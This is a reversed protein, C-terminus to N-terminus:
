WPFRGPVTGTRLWITKLVKKGPVGPFRGRFSKPVKGPVQGPVPVERILVQGSGGQFGGRFRGPVRDRFRCGERFRHNPLPGPM